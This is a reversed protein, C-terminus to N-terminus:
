PISRPVPVHVLPDEEQNRREGEGDRYPAATEKGGEGPAHTEEVMGVPDALPVFSRHGEHAPEGHDGPHGRNGKEFGGTEAPREHSAGANGEHKGAEKEDPEPIVKVLRRGTHTEEELTEEHDGNQARATERDAIKSGDGSRKREFETGGRKGKGKESKEAEDVGDIEEVTEVREGGAHAPDAPQPQSHQGEDPAEARERHHGEGPEPRKQGVEGEVEPEMGPEEGLNEQAIRPTEKEPRGEREEREREVPNEHAHRERRRRHDVGPDQAVRHEVGQGHDGAADKAASVGHPGVAAMEVMEKERTSEAPPPDGEEEGEHGERVTKYPNQAPVDKPEVVLREDEEKEERGGGLGDKGEPEPPPRSELDRRSRLSPLTLRLRRLPVRFAGRGPIPSGTLGPGNM